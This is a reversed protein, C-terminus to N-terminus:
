DGHSIEKIYWSPVINSMRDYWCIVNAAILLLCRGDDTEVRYKKDGSVGKEIPEVKIFSDYGPIDHYEYPLVERKAEMNESRKIFCDANSNELPEMVTPSARQCGNGTITIIVM